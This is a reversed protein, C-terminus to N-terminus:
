PKLPKDPQPLRSILAMADANQDPSRITGAFMDNWAQALPAAVGLVSHGAEPALYISTYEDVDSLSHATYALVQPTMIPDSGGNVLYVPYHSFTMRMNPLDRPNLDGIISLVATFKGPNLAAIHLAGAGGMSIGSLYVRRGDVHFAAKAADLAAFIETQAPDDFTTSGEVWPAAVIAGSGDALSQLNPLAVVNTETEGRGHLVIVLPYARQASYGRPVYIGLPEPPLGKPMRLLSVSAGPQTSIPRFTGNLIDEDLAIELATEGQMIATSRPDIKPQSQVDRFDDIMSVIRTSFEYANLGTQKYVAVAHTELRSQMAQLQAVLAVALLIANM